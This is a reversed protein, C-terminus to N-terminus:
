AAPPSSPPQPLTRKARLARWAGGQTLSSWAWRMWRLLALALWLAWALMALRYCFLPVSIVWVQPLADGTRDKYWRLFTSSSGNGAIQMDPMGLLGQHISVFIVILAALTWLVLLIQFLDFSFNGALPKRERYGLALIWGAVIISAWVPVQTLGLGLLIWHHVKLPSLGSRGLGISVLLLVALLSWFLVAPGVRLGGTFLVWRNTPLQIQLEANVSTTGLKLDPSKFYTKLALPQQWNLDVRQSGPVLPLTVKLGEQRIPQVAGNIHVSQLVAGEPLTLVHQGGLSSRLTLSLTSETFRQGPKLVLLSRDLTLTQGPVGAPRSIALTLEEGPWPRWEIPWRQTASEPHVPPIGTASFHWIPNLDLRWVDMMSDSETAKLQITSTEAFVSRWSFDTANPGMSVRVKGDKVEVDAATVSEGPLLPIETVFATGPPSLRVIRTEIEWTLGLILNREVTFFPPLSTEKQASKDPGLDQLRTLQLNDATLGNDQLGELSWDSVQAQLFHPKLPLAIQVSSREPLPGEVVVQHVGPTLQIWLQGEGDRHMAGFPQGDISVSQPSWEEFSGPLPVATTGEVGIELVARLQNGAVTLQMRSVSACDPFCEPNQLIRTRLEELLEKSPYDARATQPALGLTLALLVAAAAVKRAKLFNPWFTGPLGLVCLVLLALLVVRLIALFFNVAPPILFLSLEQSKEVPGNWRLDFRNWSWTPLGPGTQVKTGPRQQLLNEQTKQDYYGFKGGAKGSAAVMQEPEAERKMKSRLMLSPKAMEDAAVNDQAQMAEAPPPPPANLEGQVAQPAPAGAMPFGGGRSTPYPANGGEADLYAYSHELVPYMAQRLQQVMFPVAIAVLVVLAIGVYVRVVQRLIGSKLLRLLACGALLALWVWQPADRETYTLALALLALLGWWKGWLKAFILFLILVMFINLLNWASIWTGPVEDAGTAALLTWGPPLNLEGSVQQFDNNWGIAPIRRIMGALRSDASVQLQGQRIEVGARKDGELSTIFQDQGNVSVRGLQVPPNMELRYSRNMTGSLADQITYGTGDFDLWLRRFLTLQDPAPDADGRRREALQMTEGPRIRYAPYSKWEEPLTTQQPDISALGEVSVLRLNNHAQFVWVEEAALPPDEQPLTLATVPGLHRAKITLEWNGARVQVKLRGDQEVRAPLPSDISVLKFGEPLLKGLVVERAKGAADLNIRTVLYLPIDDDVLRNVRVDLREEGGEQEGEKELWLLGNEDWQPFNVPAGKLSLKLLGVAPPIQFNEPIADWAYSGTLSHAGKKLFVSPTEGRLVVAASQGDAKLGLPWRKEDGPLPVWDDKYLLWQQSFAGQKEDISLDLRSAWGCVREGESANLFPCREDEHDRLAWDIWPRLTDPIQDPSMPAAQVRAAILFVAFLSLFIRLMPRPM